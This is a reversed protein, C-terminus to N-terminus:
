RPGICMEALDAEVGRFFDHPGTMAIRDKRIAAPKAAAAQDSLELFRRLAPSTRAAVFDDLKQEAVETPNLRLLEQNGTEQPSGPMLKIRHILAYRNCNEFTTDVINALRIPREIELYRKVSPNEKLRVLENTADRGATAALKEQYAKEDIVADTQALMRTGWKTLLDRGRQELESTQIGKSALCAPDAARQLAKGFEATFAQAYPLAFADRVLAAQAAPAQDLQQASALPALAALLAAIALAKHLKM